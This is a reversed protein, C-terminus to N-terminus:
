LSEEQHPEHEARGTFVREPIWLRVAFLSGTRELPIM